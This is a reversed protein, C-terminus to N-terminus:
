LNYYIGINLGASYLYGKVPADIISTLSRRYIPEVLLDTRKGIPYRIGCGALMGLNVRSFGPDVKTTKKSESNGYGNIATINESLFINASVGATVYFKLKGTVIFYDAKVPINLYYYHFNYAYTVAQQGYPVSELSYKKIRQGNDSFLVGAEVNWKKNLKFAANIGTTYGFKAVEATDRYDTIAKSDADAKLTRYAYDPSFSIGLEIKKRKITDTQGSTVFPLVIVLFTIIKKM